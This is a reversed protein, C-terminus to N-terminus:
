WKMRILKYDFSQEAYIKIREIAHKLTFNKRKGWILDDGIDYLTCEEKNDSTRLGRGISQLNRIRSKSPSAMIINHLNKINVGTSFTGYSAVIIANTEKEVISRIAEREKADTAGSIFFVKRTSRTSIAKTNIMNYLVDGHKEVFQFLILTNGKLSLSLNRIFKNRKDHKVLFDIEQQYDFKKSLMKDEKTHEIMLCYIKLNALHNDDMLTKTTTVNFVPGFLGELVLRHTKTGDLTGTTGVKFPANICKTLIGTLAKAKFLHAEDGYICDFGEFFEKPLNQLSQWTSIVVDHTNIKEYGSYIKHTHKAVNWNNISSYDEFDSYLQEVLSTTPVIVLQKRKHMLNWRMLSYIMLSKGSGTPSLLLARKYKLAERIAEIQYTRVAIPQGKSALKLSDVFEMVQDFSFDEVESKLNSVDLVYDNQDCFKQLYYFLGVYLEKTFMSYLSIKGNWMKNRFAPTFRAGPVDFTFYEQLEQMVAPESSVKLYVDNKKTVILTESM